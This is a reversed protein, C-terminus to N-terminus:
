KRAEAFLVWHTFEHGVPVTFLVSVLIQSHELLQKVHAPVSVFQVEQWGESNRYLLLQMLWHGDCVYRGVLMDVQRFQVSGLHEMQLSLKHRM